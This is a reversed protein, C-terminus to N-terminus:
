QRELTFTFRGIERGGQEGDHFVLTYEGPALDGVPLLITAPVGLEPAAITLRFRESGNAALLSATYREVKSDPLVDAQLVAYSDAATVILRPGTGRAASRLAVTPVGQAADRGALEQRLGSIVSFQQYGAVSLLVIAAAGLAPVLGAPPTVFLRAWWSRGDRTEDDDDQALAGPSRSAPAATLVARANDVFAAAASLETECEACDFYHEEYVAREEVSMEGLLYREAAHTRIAEEHQMRM